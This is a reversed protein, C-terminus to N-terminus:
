RGSQGYLPIVSVTVISIGTEKLSIAEGSEAYAGLIDPDLWANEEIDEWCFLRYDGPAVGEFRVNGSADAVASRYLELRRRANPALVVVAGSAPRRSADLAIVALANSSAGMTIELSAGPKTGVRVGAEMVDVSGARASQIFVSPPAGSFSLRFDGSPVNTFTFAGRADVRAEVIARGADLIMRLDALLPALAEKPVGELRVRGSVAIRPYLLIRLNEIDADRAEFSASGALSPTVADIVYKGPAAGALEFFGTRLTPASAGSTEIGERRQRGLVIRVDPDPRGTAANIAQGRVRTALGRPAVLTGAEFVRGPELRIPKADDETTGGYYAPWNVVQANLPLASHEESPVARLFYWGPTLGFLRYEGASDTVAYEGGRFVREGKEYHVRFIKVVYSPVPEGYQNIVKGHIAAAPTLEVNFRMAEGDLAVILSGPKGPARQGYEAPVYDSHGVFLRYVGQPIDRIAFKGADDTLASLAEKPDSSSGKAL